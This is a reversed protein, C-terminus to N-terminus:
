DAPWQEVQYFYGLRFQAESLNSLPVFGDENRYGYSFNISTGDSFRNAINLSTNSILGTQFFNQLNDYARYDYRAGQLEPFATALNSRSYPHNITGDQINYTTTVATLLVSSLARTYVQILHREGTPSPRLSANNWFGNGYADQDDPLSAIDNAFFSQDVTIEFGKDLDQAAGNKTTILIVGNRGAEGYLVTASLGKLVSVEAISNPDLDLFRSSASAVGSVVGDGDRDAFDSNTDSNFHFM